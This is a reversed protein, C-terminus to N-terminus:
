RNAKRMIEELTLIREPGRMRQDVQSPYMTELTSPSEPQMVRERPPQTRIPHSVMQSGQIVPGAVGTGEAMSQLAPIPGSSGSSVSPFFLEVFSQPAVRNLSKRFAEVRALDGSEKIARFFDSFEMMVRNQEAKMDARLLRSRMAELQPQILKEYPSANKPVPTIKPMPPLPAAPENALSPSSVTAPNPTVQQRIPVQSASEVPVGSQVIRYQNAWPPPGYSEARGGTPPMPAAAGSTIGPSEAPKPNLVAETKIPVNPGVTPVIEFRRPPGFTEKPLGAQTGEAPLPSPARNYQTV